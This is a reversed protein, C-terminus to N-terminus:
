SLTMNSYFFSTFFFVLRLRQRHKSDPFEKIFCDDDLNSTPRHSLMALANPQYGFHCFSVPSTSLEFRERGVM